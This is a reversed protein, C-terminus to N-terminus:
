LYNHKSKQYRIIDRLVRKKPKRKRKDELREKLKTYKEIIEKRPEKCPVTSYQRVPLYNDYMVRHTPKPLPVNVPILRLASM